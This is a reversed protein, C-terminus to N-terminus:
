VASLPVSLKAAPSVAFVTSTATSSSEWSSPASVIVSVNDFGDPALSPSAEAVPVILLVSAIGLAHITRKPGFPRSGPPRHM